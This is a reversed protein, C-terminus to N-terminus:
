KIIIRTYPYCMWVVTTGDAKLGTVAWLMVQRGSTGVASADFSVLYQEVPKLKPLVVKTQATLHPGSQYTLITGDNWTMLGTNVITWKIDFDDGANYKTDDFPRQDTIDCAFDPKLTAVPSIVLTPTPTGPTETPTSTRTQTPYPTNTPPIKTLTETATADVPLPTVSPTATPQPIAQTQWLTCATLLAILAFAIAFIQIQKTPWAM